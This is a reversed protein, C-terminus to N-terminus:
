YNIQNIVIFALLGAVIAYIFWKLMKSVKNKPKDEETKCCEKM